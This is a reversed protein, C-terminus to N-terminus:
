PRPPQATLARAVTVAPVAWGGAQGNRALSGIAVVVWVGEGTRGILPGGSAGDTGTCSHRMMPRDAAVAEYGLVKCDFDALLVRPQDAQYGGYVLPMGPKAFGPALPLFREATGMDVDLALM